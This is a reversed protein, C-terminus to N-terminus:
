GRASTTEIYQYAESELIAKDIDIGLHYAMDLTQIIIQALESVLGSPKATVGKWTRYEGDKDKDISIWDYSDKHSPHSPQVKDEGIKYYESPRGSCIEETASTVLDEIDQLHFSWYANIAARYQLSHLEDHKGNRSTHTGIRGALNNLYGM